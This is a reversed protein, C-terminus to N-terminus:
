NNGGTRDFRYRLADRYLGMAWQLKALEPRRVFEGLAKTGVKINRLPRFSKQYFRSANRLLKAERENRPQYNDWKKRFLEYAHMMRKTDLFGAGPHLRKRYLRDPLYHVEALLAMQCFMDTDEHPWFENTWGTTQEFVSRRFMAFPGQGTGCYFTVFPTAREWSFLPRPLGFLLPIWRSRKRSSCPRGNVDIELFQCAALGVKPNRDLYDSLVRLASPELLDDHDLFLLYKSDISSERAGRNRAASTGENRQQLIKVRGDLVAFEALIAATQDTSGDDVLIHEWAAIDQALVSAITDRIFAESNYCPTIVTIGARRRVRREKLFLVDGSM